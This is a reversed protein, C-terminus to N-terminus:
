GGNGSIVADCGKGRFAGAFTDWPPGPRAGPLETYPLETHPVVKLGPYREQLAKAIAPNTVDVKFSNNSVMCVTKNSLTDLRPAMKIMEITVDGLPSVVPYVPEASLTVQPILSSAVFAAAILMASSRNADKLSLARLMLNRMTREKKESVM